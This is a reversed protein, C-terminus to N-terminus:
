YINKLTGFYNPNKKSRQLYIVIIEEIQIQTLRIVM